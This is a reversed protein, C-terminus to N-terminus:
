AVLWDERMFGLGMGIGEDRPAPDLRPMMRGLDEEHATAFYTDGPPSAWTSLFREATVAADALGLRSQHSLSILPTAPAPPNLRFADGPVASRDPQGASPAGSGGDPGEGLLDYGPPATQFEQYYAEAAAAQQRASAIARPSHDHPVVVACVDFGTGGSNTATVVILYVRGDGHGQREARLRLTGPGIDAADSPNANDDAYVLLHLEADPPDVTVSLGVNVLRHNPPWLLPQAVSCSVTPAVEGQFEFAGIDIIGNVIRPFGPGRQDYPGPPFANDGADIAPSGPLLAMTPTLGGNDQLSGLLPDIPHDSTGVLDSAGFGTAGTGDGILNHGQSTSDGMVDPGAPASNAAVITNRIARVNDLIDLGGGVVRASNGSITSSSITMQIGFSYLYLGGGSNNASNGNITSNTITLPGNASEIGGGYVAANGSITSATVTLAGLYNYIGGGFDASNGSVTSNIITLAGNLSHIGGGFVEGPGVTNGSVVSDLVTLQGGSNDIGGGEDHAYNGHILCEVVTLAGGLNRIGGGFDATGDTVTLGSIAVTASISFVRSAHNGSVTIVNAGPGAIALEKNLALEGTTLTITGTLGPRFDVTGGAPTDLIAQRLSGPGADNLNTVTSPVCRDELVQLHLHARLRDMKGTKRRGGQSSCAVRNRWHWLSLCTM